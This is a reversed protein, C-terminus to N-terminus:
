ASSYSIIRFVKNSLSQDCVHCIFSFISGFTSTGPGQLTLIKATRSNEPGM